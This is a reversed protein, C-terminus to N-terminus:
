SSACPAVTAGVEGLAEACFALTAAALAEYGVPAWVVTLTERTAGDTKTRQADKVANACPGDTDVLCLLGDHRLEQGSPNFVYAGPGAVEVRLPARAKELDVVSIPLGSRLSAANGIDVAVNISALAREQVARALYESSPKGRGTPKYGGHRLLDRVASRLSDTPEPLACPAPEGRLLAAVRAPTALTALPAPFAARLAAPVLAPHPAFTLM